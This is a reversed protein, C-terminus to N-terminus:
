AACLPLQSSQSISILKVKPFWGQRQADWEYVTGDRPDTYVTAATPQQPATSAGYQQEAKLQFEFDNGESTAM